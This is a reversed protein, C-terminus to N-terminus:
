GCRGRDIGASRCGCVPHVFHDVVARSGVGTRWGSAAENTDDHRVLPGAYAPTTLRDRVRSRSRSTNTVARFFQEPIAGNILNTISLEGAPSTNTQISSWDVLNTSTQTIVTEGEYTGGITTIFNNGQIQMGSFAPSGVFEPSTAGSFGIGLTGSHGNGSLDSINTSGVSEDFNYLLATSADSNFYGFVPTFSDGSYRATTSIRLSKIDGVFSPYVPSGSQSSRWIAGVAMINASGSPITGSAPRSAVNTGDVYLREQSGDYVYAIHHWVGLTLSGGSIPSPSSLDSFGYVGPGSVLGFQEDEQSNQWANWVVGLNTSRPAVVGEYTANTGLVVNGLVSITDTTKSFHAYYQPQATFSLDDLAFDNGSVATNEDHIEIVAQTSLQSNWVVNFSQWQGNTPTVQIDNGQPQGNILVRLVPPNTDVGHGTTNGWSSVWGSFEYTTYTSVNVTESWAFDDANTSGNAALMLDDGTMPGYSFANSNGLHPNTTVDYTKAGVIDNPSYVYTSTFGINGLDFNGNTLLQSQAHMLRCALM